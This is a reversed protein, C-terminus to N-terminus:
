YIVFYELNLDSSVAMAIAEGDMIGHMYCEGVFIYHDMERRLVVPVSCRLLVCVFDEEQAASPALGIYGNRTIFFRRCRAFTIFATHIVM